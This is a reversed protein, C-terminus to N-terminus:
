YRISVTFGTGCSASCMTWEAWNSFGADPAFCEASDVSEGTCGAGGPMGNQCDRTRFIAFEFKSEIQSSMKM